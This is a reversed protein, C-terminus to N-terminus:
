SNKHRIETPKYKKWSKNQRFRAAEMLHGYEDLMQSFTNYIPLTNIISM